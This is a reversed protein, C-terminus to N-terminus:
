KRTFFIVTIRNINKNERNFTTNDKKKKKNFKCTVTHFIILTMKMLQLNLFNISLLNNSINIKFLSLIIHM